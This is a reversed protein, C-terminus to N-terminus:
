RKPSVAKTWGDVQWQGLRTRDCSNFATFRYVRGSQGNSIVAICTDPVGFHRRLILVAEAENITAGAIRRTVGPRDRVVHGTPQKAPAPPPASQVRLYWYSAGAAAIALALLVWPWARWPRPEGLPRDDYIDPLDHRV